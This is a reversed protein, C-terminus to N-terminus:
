AAQLFAGAVPLHFRQPLWATLSLRRPNNAVPIRADGSTWRAPRGGQIEPAHWGTALSDCALDLPIDDLALALVLVGLRRHDPLDTAMCPRMSRSRLRLTTTNPPLTAHWTGPSARYLPIRLNDALLHLDPEATLADPGLRPALRAFIAPLGPDAATVIPLCTDQRTPAQDPFRARYEAANHFMDRNRDEFYSEAWTGNALVCDHPGLDLHYYAITGIHDPQTITADNVLAGAHVLRDEVLIAHGPSVCLERHPQGPGIANAAIRIPTNARGALCGDFTQTGIWRIPRLGGFRTAVRDGPKLAEVPVEGTETLIRTGRLFCIAFAAFSVALTTGATYSRNGPDQYDVFYQDVQDRSIMGGDSTTGVYYHLLSGTSVSLQENLIFTSDSTTETWVGNEIFALGLITVTQNVSSYTVSYYFNSTWTAM